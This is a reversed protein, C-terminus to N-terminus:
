PVGLTIALPGDYGSAPAKVTVNTYQIPSNTLAFSVLQFPSNVTARNFNYCISDCSLSVTVVDSAHLTFGASTTLLESGLYWDVVSVRVTAPRSTYASVDAAVLILLVLLAVGIILVMRPIRLRHARTVGVQDYGGYFTAVTDHM